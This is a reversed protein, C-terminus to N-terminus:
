PLAFAIPIAIPRGYMDLRGFHKIAENVAAEVDSAKTVDAKVAISRDKGGEQQLLELTTIAAEHSVESRANPTRDACVVKAGERNYARAIARGFGSSSGTVIAVKNNLRGGPPQPAHSASM